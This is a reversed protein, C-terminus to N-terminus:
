FEPPHWGVTIATALWFPPTPLVVVATLRAATGQGREALAHEQQIEVRLGVAVLPRPRSFVSPALAYRTRSPSPLRSSLILSVAKSAAPRREWRLPNTRRRIQFQRSHFIVQEGQRPQQLGHQFRLPEVHDQHITRRRQADMVVSVGKAASRRNARAAAIRTNSGEFANGHHVAHEVLQAIRADIRAEINEANHHRHKVAPRLKGVLDDIFHPVLEPRANKFRSEACCAGRRLASSRCVRDDM